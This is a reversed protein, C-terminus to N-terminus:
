VRILRMAEQWLELNLRISELIGSIARTKRLKGKLTRGIVGGRLTNEQVVNYTTWLDHGDDATRRSALLEAAGFPPTERTRFRAQLVKEAYGLREQYSLETRAMREVTDNLSPFCNAIRKAGDVISAIINGRHPVLISGFESLTVIMGSGCIYRYLGGRLQFSSSKDHSNILIIEPMTGMVKGAEAEHRLRIMHRAYLRRRARMSQSAETPYFGNERLAEILQATDIFTYSPGTDPSGSTTFTAPALRMIEEKSLVPVSIRREVTEDYM